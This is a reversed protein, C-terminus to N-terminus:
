GKRDPLLDPAAATVVGAPLRAAATALLAQRLGSPAPIPRADACWAQQSRSKLRPQGPGTEDGLIEGPKPAAALQRTAGARRAPDTVPGASADDPLWGASAGAEQRSSRRGHASQSAPEGASFHCPVRQWAGDLLAWVAGLDTPDLKVSIRTCGAARAAALASSAYQLGGVRLGQM